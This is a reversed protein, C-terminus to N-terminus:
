DWLFGMSSENACGCKPCKLNKLEDDSEKHMRKGCKRCYCYYRKVIHYESDLEDRMVYPVYGREAVTKIGFEKQPISDPDNPAYISVDKDQKWSGCNKCVYVVYEADVAAYPTNNYTEQLEKGYKGESIDALTERYQQPFLMGFGPNVSYEHRCKKCKYEYGQGM